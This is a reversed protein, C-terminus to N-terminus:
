RNLWFYIVSKLLQVLPISVEPKFFSGTTRLLLCVAILAFFPFESAEIVVFSGVQLVFTHVPHQLRFIDGGDVILFVVRFGNTPSRVVESLVESM